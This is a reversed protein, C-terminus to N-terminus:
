ATNPIRHKKLGMSMHNATSEPITQSEIISCDNVYRFTLTKESKWAQTKKYEWYAIDNACIVIAKHYILSHLATWAGCISPLWTTADDPNQNPPISSLNPVLTGIIKLNWPLESASMSFAGLFPTERSSVAFTTEFQYATVGPQYHEATSKAPKM